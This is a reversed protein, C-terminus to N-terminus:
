KVSWIKQLLPLWGGFTPHIGDGLPTNEADVYKCQQGIAAKLLSNLVTKKGHVATPGVWVCKLSRYRIEKLIPEIDPVKTASYNNTGLFIIVSGTEPHADLARKAAGKASWYEISSGVKCEWQIHEGNKKVDNTRQKSGCALSDGMILVNDAGLSVTQALLVVLSAFFNLM